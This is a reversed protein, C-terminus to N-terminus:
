TRLWGSVKPRSAAKWASRWSQRHEAADAREAAVLLGAVFAQSRSTGDSVAERLWQEAVVADHQDGLVTQLDALAAGHKAAAPVARAAAEAAYRARKALIRVHHLEEDSPHHGLRGVAKRLKRWPTAALEPFVKTAPADAADTLAPEKGAQVLRDLLATYDSSNLVDLLEAHALARQRALRRVLRMANPEDGRDLRRAALELRQGLVDKDRVAGLADALVKLDTRLSDAWEEDVLPGFTKLDSRL